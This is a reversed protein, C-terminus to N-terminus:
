HRWRRIARLSKVSTEQALRLEELAAPPRRATGVALARDVDGVIRAQWAM